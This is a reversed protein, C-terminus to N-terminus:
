GGPNYDIIVEAVADEGFPTRESLDSGGRSPGWLHFHDPDAKLAKLADELRQMGLADFYIQVATGNRVVQFSLM